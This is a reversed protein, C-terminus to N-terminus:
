QLRVGYGELYERLATTVTKKLNDGRSRGLEALAAKIGGDLYHIALTVPDGHKLDYAAQVIVLDENELVENIKETSTEPPKRPIAARPKKSVPKKNGKGARPPDAQEVKTHEDIAEGFELPGFKSSGKM